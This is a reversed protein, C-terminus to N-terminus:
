KCILYYGVVPNGSLDLGVVISNEKMLDIALDVTDMADKVTTRRDVAVLLRVEIDLDHHCESIARLVSELYSRKTMGTEPICRPTTRLELYKM